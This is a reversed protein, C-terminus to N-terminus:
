QGKQLPESQGWWRKGKYWRRTHYHRISLNCICEGGKKLIKHVHRVNVGVACLLSRDHNRVVNCSIIQNWSVSGCCRVLADGILWGERLKKNVICLSHFGLGPDIDCVLKAVNAREQLCCAKESGIIHWLGFGM